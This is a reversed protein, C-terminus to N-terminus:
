IKENEEPEILERKVEVQDSASQTRPPTGVETPVSAPEMQDPATDFRDMSVIAASEIQLKLIISYKKAKLFMNTDLGVTPTDPVDEYCM